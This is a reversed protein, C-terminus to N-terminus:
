KVSFTAYIPLHDSYGKGLHHKPHKRSQQWRYLSNKKFLYEPTFRQFSGEEYEVGKADALGPSIIMHDLSEKKGYFNHSWRKKEPLDYWLNYYLDKARKLSSFTVPEDDQVTKLIHNIGTIGDTDNHKRRKKFVRYEEHHSNFDGLLLFPQDHGLEDLRKRLAKASLIRKSEPGSKSKWHNVFLYLPQGGILLKVELISRVGRNASVPIEKAYTIPHRSLLAVRVTTNKKDAIARHRYYLGKRNLTAQLDKLAHVTEIEQLAIVDPRMDAIVQALNHLKKRYNEPNWQWSSNPIYEVYETGDFHLDFLNEVNYSAIKVSEGGWLLNCLVGFALLLRIM